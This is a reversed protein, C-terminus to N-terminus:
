CHRQHEPHAIESRSEDLGVSFIETTMIQLRANDTFTYASSAILVTVITWIVGFYKEATIM